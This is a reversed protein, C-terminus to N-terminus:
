SLRKEGQPGLTQGYSVFLDRTLYRGVTIDAQNPGAFQVRLVDLDLARVVSLQRVGQTVYDAVLQQAVDSRSQEAGTSSQGAEALPRGLVLVSLIDREEMPPESTLK